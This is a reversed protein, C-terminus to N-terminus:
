ILQNTTHHIYLIFSLSICSKFEYIWQLSFYSSYLLILIIYMNVFTYTDDVYCVWHCELWGHGVWCRMVHSHTCAGRAGTNYVAVAVPMGMGTPIRGYGSKTAYGRWEPVPLELMWGAHIIGVRYTCYCLKYTYLM